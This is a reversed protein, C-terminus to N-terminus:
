TQAALDLVYMPPPRARPALESELGLHTLIKAIVDPDTIFTLLHRRGGCDCRLVQHGFVRSLLDAWLTRRRRPLRGPLLTGNSTTRPPHGRCRDRDDDDDAADTPQPVIRSRHSAAPALIGHYTLLHVRPRPIIAALREILTDPEFLVATTGDRWARRFAYRVRGDGNWSLRETALPPRTLYRCLRELRSTEGADFAVAAQLSFGDLAATLPSRPRPSTEPCRRMRGPYSGAKSGLAIRGQVAAAQCLDLVSPDHHHHHRDPDLDGALLGRRRLLTRVRNRIARVLRAVDEDTPPDIPCFRPTCGLGLDTFVGDLVVAHYHPSVRLASDCLQTAVISGTRGDHVGQRRCQVAARRRIWGMVARIFIGKVERCLAPDYALPYRLPFPLSLV